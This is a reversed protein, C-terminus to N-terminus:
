LHRCEDLAIAPSGVGYRASHNCRDLQRECTGTILVPEARHDRFRAAVHQSGVDAQNAIGRDPGIKRCPWDGVALKEFCLWRLSTQHFDTQGTSLEPFHQLM